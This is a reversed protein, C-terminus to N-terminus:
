FGTFLVKPNNVSMMEMLTPKVENAQERFKMLRYQKMMEPPIYPEYKARVGFFSAVYQEYAIAQATDRDNYNYRATQYAQMMETTATPLLSSWFNAVRFEDPVQIGSKKAAPAIVDQYWLYMAQDTKWVPRNLVDKGTFAAWPKQVVPSARYGLNNLVSFIWRNKESEVLTDPKGPDGGLFNKILMNPVNYFDLTGTSDAIKWDKFRYSGLRDLTANHEGNQTLMGYIESFAQMMLLWAMSGVITSMQYMFLRPNKKWLDPPYLDFVRNDYGMFKRAADSVGPFTSIMHNVLPNVLVNAALWRPAVFLAKGVRGAIADVREDTSYQFDGLSISCFNAAIRADRHDPLDEMPVHRLVPNQTLQHKILNFLLLDHQLSIVREGQGQLPLSGVLTNNEFFDTLNGREDYQMLDIPIDDYSIAGQNERYVRGREDEIRRELNLMHLPVKLKKMVDWYPDQRMKLYIQMYQRRGLKDFGIQKGGITVSLNPALGPLSGILAKVAHYTDFPRFTVLGLLARGGQIATFAMDLSLPMRVIASYDDWRKIVFDTAAEKATPTAEVMGEAVLPPAVEATVPAYLPAPMFMPEIAKATAKPASKPSPVHMTPISKVNADDFTIAVNKKDAKLVSDAYNTIVLGDYGKSLATTLYKKLTVADVGTNKVDVVYPNNMKIWRPSTKRNSNSHLGSGLDHVIFGPAQHNLIGTTPMAFALTTFSKGTKLKTRGEMHAFVPNTFPQIEQTNLQMIIREAEVRVAELKVNDSVADRVKQQLEENSWKNEFVEDYYFKLTEFASSTQSSMYDDIATILNKANMVTNFKARSEHPFWRGQSAYSGPDTLHVSDVLDGAKWKVFEPHETLAYIELAKAHPLGLGDVLNAYIHSRAGTETEVTYGYGDYVPEGDMGLQVRVNGAADPEIWKQIVPMAYMDVTEPDRTGVLDNVHMVDPIRAAMFMPSIDGKEAEVHQRGYWYEAPMVRLTKMTKVTEAIRAIAANRLQVDAQYQAKVEPSLKSLDVPAEKGISNALLSALATQTNTRGSTGVMPTSAVGEGPRMIQSNTYDIKMVLNGNVDKVSVIMKTPTPHVTYTYTSLRSDNAARIIEARAQIMDMAVAKTLSKLALVIEKYEPKAQESPSTLLKEMVKVNFNKFMKRTPAFEDSSRIDAFVGKLIKLTRKRVAQAFVFEEPMTKYRGRSIPTGKAGGPAPIGKIDANVRRTGWLVDNINTAVLKDTDTAIRRYLDKLYQSNDVPLGRLADHIYGLKDAYEVAGKDGFIDIHDIINHRAKANVPDMSLAPESLTLGYFSSAVTQQDAAIREMQSATAANTMWNLNYLALDNQFNKLERRLRAVLQAKTEDRTTALSAAYETLETDKADVDDVPLRGTFGIFGTLLSRENTTINLVNNIIALATKSDLTELYQNLERVTMSQRTKTLTKLYKDVSGNIYEDRQRRLMDFYHARTATSFDNNIKVIERLDADTLVTNVNPNIQTAANAGPFIAKILEVYNQGKQAFDPSFVHFKQEVVQGAFKASRTMVQRAKEVIETKKPRDLTKVAVSTKGREIRTQWFIHPPLVSADMLAQIVVDMNASHTDAGINEPVWTARRMADSLMVFIDDKTYNGEPDRAYDVRELLLHLRMENKTLGKFVDPKKDNVEGIVSDVTALIARVTPALTTNGEVIANLKADEIKNLNDIIKQEAEDLKVDGINLGAKLQEDSITKGRTGTVPRIGNMQRDIRRRDLLLSELVTMDQVADYYAETYHAQASAYDISEEASDNVERMFDRFIDSRLKLDESTIGLTKLRKANTVGVGLEKLRQSLELLNNIVEPAVSADIKQVYNDITTGFKALSGRKLDGGMMQLMGDHVVKRFDLIDVSSNEIVLRELSQIDDFVKFVDVYQRMYENYKQIRSRYKALDNSLTKSLEKGEEQLRTARQVLAAYRDLVDSIRAFNGPNSSDFKSALRRTLYERRTSVDNLLHIVRRYQMSKAVRQAYTVEDPNAKLKEQSRAVDEIMATINLDSVGIEEGVTRSEEENAITADLSGIQSLNKRLLYNENKLRYEAELDAADKATYDPVTIGMDDSAIVAAYGDMSNTKRVTKYPTHFVYFLKFPSDGFRLIANDQIYAVIANAAIAADVKGEDVQKLLDRIQQVHPRYKNQQSPSLRLMGANLYKVLSIRPAARDGELVSKQYKKYWDMAAARKILEATDDVEYDPANDALWQELKTDNEIHTYAVGLRGEPRVLESQNARQRLSYVANDINNRISREIHTTWVYEPTVQRYSINGNADVTKIEILDKVVQGDKYVPRLNRLVDDIANTSAVYVEQRLDMGLEMDKSSQAVYATKMVQDFSNRGYITRKERAAQRFAAKEGFTVSGLWYRHKPLVNYRVHNGIVNTLLMQEIARRLNADQGPKNMAVVASWLARASYKRDAIRSANVVPEKTETDVREVTAGMEAAIESLSKGMWDGGVDDWNEGGSFEDGVDIGFDTAADGANSSPTSSPTPAPEKGVLSPVTEVALVPYTEIPEVDVKKGISAQYGGVDLWGLYSTNVRESIRSDTFQPNGKYLPLLRAEDFTSWWKYGVTQRKRDAIKVAEAIDTQTVEIEPALKNIVATTYDYWHGFFKVFYARAEPSLTRADHGGIAFFDKFPINKTVLILNGDKDRVVGNRDTKPVRIKLQQANPSVPGDLWGGALVQKGPGTSKFYTIPTGAVANSDALFQRASNDDQGETKRLGNALMWSSNASLNRIDEADSMDPVSKRMAEGMRQILSYMTSDFGGEDFETDMLPNQGSTSNFMMNTLETVIREEIDSQIARIDKNDMRYAPYLKAALRHIMPAYLTRVLLHNVEHVQINYNEKGKLALAINMYGLRLGNVGFTMGGGNYRGIMQKHLHSLEGIAGLRQTYFVKQLTALVEANEATATPLMQERYHERWKDNDTYIDLAEPDTELRVARLREMTRIGHLRAFERAWSLSWRDVWEAMLDAQEETQGWVDILRTRFEQKNSVTEILLEVNEVNKLKDRVALLIKGTIKRVGDVGSAWSPVADRFQEVTVPTTEEGATQRYYRTKGARYDEMEAPLSGPEAEEKFEYGYPFDTYEAPTRRRANVEANEPTEPRAEREQFTGATAEPQSTTEDSPASTDAPVDPSTEFASKLLPHNMVVGFADDRDLNRKFRNASIRTLVNNDTLWDLIRKADKIPVGIQNSVSATNVSAREVVYDLANVINNAFETFSSEVSSDSEFSGTGDASSASTETSADAGEDPTFEIPTEATGSLGSEDISGEISPTTGGEIGTASTDEISASTDSEIGSPLEDVIDSEDAIDDEITTGVSSRMAKLEDGEIFEFVNGPPIDPVPTISASPDVQRSKAFTIFDNGAASLGRVPDDDPMALYDELYARVLVYERLGSKSIADNLADGVTLFQRSIAKNIATNIVDTTGVRNGDADVGYLIPSGETPLWGNQNLLDEIIKSSTTPNKVAVVTLAIQREEPLSLFQEKGIVDLMWYQAPGNLIYDRKDLADLGAYENISYTASPDYVFETPTETGDETGSPDVLGTPTGTAIDTGPTTGGEAAEVISPADATTDSATGTPVASETSAPTAGGFVFPNDGPALLKVDPSHPVFFTDMRPDNVLKVEYGGAPQGMIQFQKFGIVVGVQRQGNVVGLNIVSGRQLQKDPSPINNVYEQAWTGPNAEYIGRSVEPIFFDAGQYEQAVNYTNPGTKSKLDKLRKVAKLKAINAKTLKSPDPFFTKPVSVVIGSPLQVKVDNAEISLIAGNVTTGDIQVPTTYDAAYSELSDQRPNYSSQTPLASVPLVKNDVKTERLIGAVSQQMAPPLENYALTELGMAKTVNNQRLIVFDGQPTMSRMTITDTGDNFAPQRAMRESARSAIRPDVRNVTQEITARGTTQDFIISHPVPTNNTNLNVNLRLARSYTAPATGAAAPTIGQVNTQPGAASVPQTGRQKLANIDEFLTQGSAARGFKTMGGYVIDPALALLKQQPSLIGIADKEDRTPVRGHLRIFERIKAKNDNDIQSNSEIISYLREGVDGITEKVAPDALAKTANATIDRASKRLGAGEFFSIRGQANTAPAGFITSTAAFQGLQQVPGGYAVGGMGALQERTDQSLDAGPGAFKNYLGSTGAAGAMAGGVQAGVRLLNVLPNNPLFRGIKSDIASVVGGGGVLGPLSAVTPMFNQQYGYGFEAGMQAPVDGEPVQFAARPDKGRRQLAAALYPARYGTYAGGVAAKIDGLPGRTSAEAMPALKAGLQEKVGQRIGERQQATGSVYKGGAISGPEQKQVEVATQSKWNMLADLDQKTLGTRKKLQDPPLTRLAGVINPIENIVFENTTASGNIREVSKARDSTLKYKNIIQQANDAM